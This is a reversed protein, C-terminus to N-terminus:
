KADEEKLAEDLYQNLIKLAKTPVESLGQQNTLYQGSIILAMEKKNPILFVGLISIVLFVGFLFALFKPWFRTFETELCALMCVLIAFLSGFGFFVCSLGLGPLVVFLFWLETASM